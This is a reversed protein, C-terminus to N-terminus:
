FHLSSNLGFGIGKADTNLGNFFSLTFGTDLFGFHFGSGFTHVPEGYQNQKYYSFDLWPFAYLNLQYAFQLDPSYGFQAEDTFAQELGVGILIRPLPQYYATLNFVTPVDISFEEGTAITSDTSHQYQEISDLEANGPAPMVQEFTWVSRTVDSWKYTAGINRLAVQIEVEQKLLPQLDAILGLDIGIGPDSVTSGPDMDDTNLDDLHGDIGAATAWGQGSATVHISDETLVVKFEDSEMRMYGVAELVNLAIGVKLNGYPTSIPHAYSLSSKIVLPIAEIELGGYDLFKPEAATSDYFEIDQMPLGLFSGPLVMKIHSTLGVNVGVRWIRFGFLSQFEPSINLALDQGAVTELYDNKMSADWVGGVTWWEKYWGPTLLSNRVSFKFDPLLNWSSFSNYDRALNAPNSALEEMSRFQRHKIKLANARPAYVPLAVPLDEALSPVVPAIEEAKVEIYEMGALDRLYTDFAQVISDASAEIMVTKTLIDYIRFDSSDEPAVIVYNVGSSDTALLHCVIDLCDNAKIAILTPDQITVYDLQDLGIGELGDNSWYLTGKNMLGSVQIPEPEKQIWAMVPEEVVLTDAEVLASSDVATSDLVMLETDTTDPVLETETQALTDPSGDVTETVEVDLDDLPETITSDVQAVLFTTLTLITLINTLTKM